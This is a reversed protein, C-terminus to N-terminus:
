CGRPLLTAVLVVGDLPFVSGISQNSLPEDAPAGTSHILGHPWPFIETTSSSRVPTPLDVVARGGTYQLPVAALEVFRLGGGCTTDVM